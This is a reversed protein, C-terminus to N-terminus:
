VRPQAEPPLGRSNAYLECVPFCALRPAPHVAGQVPDGASDLSSEPLQHRCSVLAARHRLGGSAIGGEAPPQRIRNNHFNHIHMPEM